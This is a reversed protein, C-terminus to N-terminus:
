LCFVTVLLMASSAWIAVVLATVTRCLIYLDDDDYGQHHRHPKSQSRDM